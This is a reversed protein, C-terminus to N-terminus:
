NSGWVKVVSKTSWNGSPRLVEFINAQASTNAWKAVFESRSPATGAGATSQVVRHMIVLKENASNNIIFINWFQRETAENWTGLLNDLSGTTSDAGGNTSLRNAYNAGSDPTGSSGLRFTQNVSSSGILYAQIWLYKKATFSVTIDTSVGDGIDTGIEEWFNNTHTDTPDYGLVVVESGSTYDGTGFNVFSISSIPNSTQAHKGVGERRTPANGAGATNQRVAHFINLKEKTTYNALYGVAFNQEAGDGNIISASYTQNIETLDGAGNTSERFSYNAGTDGNLRLAGGINGNPLGNALVMFYRKDTLSSVTITDTDAGLTTRGLEKWGGKIFELKATDTQLLTSGEQLNNPVNDTSLGHLQKGAYYSITM